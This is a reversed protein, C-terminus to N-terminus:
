GGHAGGSLLPALADAPLAPLSLVADELLRVRRDDMLRSANARFKELAANRPLPRRDSGPHFKEAHAVTRGSTLRATVRGSYYEPYLSDPDAVIDIRDRLAVIAPDDLLTEMTEDLTMRGRVMAAAVAHYASFIGQYGNRPHRKTEEPEALIPIQRDALHVTLQEIDDPRVGNERVLQLACDIAGHIHHVLPYPKISVDAFAWDEGLGACIADTDTRTDEGLFLSYIGARGEYPLRPGTIGSAAASAAMLGGAAANGPHM